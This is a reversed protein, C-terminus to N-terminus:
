LVSEMNEQQKKTIARKDRAQANIKDRNKRRYERNKALIMERDKGYYRLKSNTSISDKNKYYYQAMKKRLKEKNDQYYAKRKAKILEINEAQYKRSQIKNCTRCEGIGGYTLALPGRKRRYYETDINKYQKCIPCPKLWNGEGDRIWGKHLRQHDSPSLMQLNELRNDQEDGNIHHLEFGDPVPGNSEEWIIRHMLRNKGTHYKRVYNDRLLYNM